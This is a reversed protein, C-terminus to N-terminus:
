FEKKAPNRRPAFFEEDDLDTYPNISLLYCESKGMCGVNYAEQMNSYIKGTAIDLFEKDDDSLARLRV